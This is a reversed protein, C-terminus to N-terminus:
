HLTREQMTHLGSTIGTNVYRHHCVQPSMGTAGRASRSLGRGACFSLAIQGAKQPPLGRTVGLEQIAEPSCTM